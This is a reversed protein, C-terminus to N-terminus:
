WVFTGVTRAQLSTQIWHEGDHINFFRQQNSENLAIMVTKGEPTKFTVNQIGNPINSEIRVSGPRVFKSAHAVIYYSM